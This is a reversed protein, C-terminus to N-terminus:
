RDNLGALSDHFDAVSTELTKGYGVAQPGADEAGDYSDADYTCWMAITGVWYTELKM